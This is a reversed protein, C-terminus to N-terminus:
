SSASFVLSACGAAATRSAYATATASRPRPAPSATAGRIRSRGAGATDRRRRADRLCLEVTATSRARRARDAARDRSGPDTHTPAGRAVGPDGPRRRPRSRPHRRDPADIDIEVCRSVTERLLPESTACCDRSVPKTSYARAASCPPHRGCRTLRACREVEGQILACAEAVLPDSKREDALCLTEGLIATLANNM